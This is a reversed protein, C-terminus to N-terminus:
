HTLNFTIPIVMKVRVPKYRQKGPNWAPCEKLVRIAEENCGAGIGRILTIDTLTGDKEVIFSLFVKGQVNLQIAQRPYKINKALYKYFGEYGGQPTPKIEPTLVFPPEAAKEPEVDITPEWDKLPETQDIAFEPLTEKIDIEKVPIPERLVVPKPKPPQVTPLVEDPIMLDFNNDSTFVHIQPEMFKWEFATICLLLSIVLGVNFFLNTKKKLDKKPNKRAEM